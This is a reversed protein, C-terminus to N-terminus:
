TTARKKPRASLDAGDKQAVVEWGGVFPYRNGVLYWPAKALHSLLAVKWSQAFSVQVIAPRAAYLTVLEGAIQRM